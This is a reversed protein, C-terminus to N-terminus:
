KPSILSPCTFHPTSEQTDRDPANPALVQDSFTRVAPHADRWRALLSLAEATPSHPEATYVVLTLGPDRPLELLETGLELPGAVPHHFTTIANCHQTVDHDSWYRRFSPSHTSLETILDTLSRDTPTRAAAARLLAVTGTAVQHWNTFFEPATPNLFVFNAKNVPTTQQSTLMPSLLTEAEQNGALYDQRANRIWAPTTITSLLHQVGQRVHPSPHPRKTTARALNFLHTRESDNLHLARSLSELVGDSAGSLNGRELRTYYDASVGALLAVEERRLGPVRRKDKFTPLGAAAPTLRARRTSLFARIESRTDM